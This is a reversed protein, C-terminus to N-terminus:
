KKTVKKDKSEDLDEDFEDEDAKTVKGPVRGKAIVQKKRYEENEKLQAKSLTSEFIEAKGQEVLKEAMAPHVEDLAYPLGGYHKNNKFMVQVKSRPRVQGGPLQSDPLQKVKPDAQQAM